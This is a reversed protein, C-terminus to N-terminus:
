RRGFETGEGGYAASEIAQITFGFQRYEYAIDAIDDPAIKEGREAKRAVRSASRQLADAQLDLANALLDRALAEWDISREGNRPTCDTADM